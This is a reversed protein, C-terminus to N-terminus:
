DNEEVYARAAIVSKMQYERLSEFDRYIRANVERGETPAVQGM